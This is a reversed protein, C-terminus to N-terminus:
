GEKDSSTDRSLLNLLAQDKRLSSQGESALHEVLGQAALLLQDKSRKNKGLIIGLPQPAREVQEGM